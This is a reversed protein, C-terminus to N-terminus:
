LSLRLGFQLIRGNNLTNTIKGFSPSTLQTQPQDFQPHNTLNYADAQFRLLYTRGSGWKWERAVSANLNFISGRRFTNRGLNGAAEGIPIPRFFAPNLIQLSTDPDGVTTGLIGTNVINPRDGGTGDVNGFGPADSGSNVTFPTGSKLMIVGSVQWNGAIWSLARSSKGFGPLTQTGYISLSHPSDFQSLGKQDQLLSGETPSQNFLDNNAATSNYMSGQDLAKGWTYLGGGTMGRVPRVRWAVQAADLYAIGANLIETVGYYRSDPRRDNITRTNLEMGPVMAARNTNANNIMKFSRSGLYGLSFTMPGFAHELTFNYQHSYPTTLDPSFRTLSTRVAAAGLDIGALPDVLGPNNVSITLVGPANYRIQSYTVPFIQGFSVAYSGRAVWDKPALFAFSFRPSVNNWDSKYPLTNLQNVEAPVTTLSHHLGGYIQLRRTVTWQDGFFVDTTWNRFGRYHNGLRIVYSTPAGYLLNDIATRGFNNSFTYEGRISNQELGNMQYRYLDGGFTLRHKRGPMQHYGVAGYRFTNEARNLPYQSQPGLGEIANNLWVRPGVANPEPHLDSRLRTYSAGLSVETADSMTLRYTARSRQSHISTDPYQGAVFKFADINQRNVTHSLSLMGRPGASGDLRLTGNIGDINQPANTNLARPDIDPRNPVALPYAALYRTVIAREAPDTTLPTRETPLPVLANGNVMGRNKTQGFNGSLYGWSPLRGSFRAGYENLRSPLVPGAQFYTRANFVSNQLSEFFEGHWADAPNSPRGLVSLEGQARGYESGYFTSEVVPRAVIVYSGGMRTNDAKQADLDLRSAFVNENRLAAGERDTRAASEKTATTANSGSASAEKAAPKPESVEADKVVEVGQGHVFGTCTAALFLFAVAGLPPFAGTRAATPGRYSSGPMRRVGMLPDAMKSFTKKFGPSLRTGRSM